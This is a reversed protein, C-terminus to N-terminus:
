GILEMLRQTTPPIGEDVLRRLTQVNEKEAPTLRGLAQPGRQRLYDITVQM